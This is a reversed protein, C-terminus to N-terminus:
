TELDRAMSSCRSCLQKGEVVNRSGTAFTTFLAPTLIFEHPENRYVAVKTGVELNDFGAVTRGNVHRYLRAQDVVVSWRDPWLAKELSVDLGRFWGEPQTLFEARPVDLENKINADETFLPEIFMRDGVIGHSWSAVPALTM